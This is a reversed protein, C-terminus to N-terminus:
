DHDPVGALRDYKREWEAIVEDMRETDYGRVQNWSKQRGLNRLV